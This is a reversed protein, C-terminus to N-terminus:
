TRNSCNENGKEEAGKTVSMFIDELSLGENEFSVIRIGGALADALTRHARLYNNFKLVLLEGFSSPQASFSDALSRLKDMLSHQEPASLLRLVFSEGFLRAADNLAFVSRCRGQAMIAVRDCINEIDSLIHSSMFITTGEAKFRLLLERVEKRGIPDLGSFPEDLILVQPRNLIAQALGLRQQMGKSLTRVNKFRAAHIGTQELAATISASRKSSSIGYLVAFLEMTEEVTLHDYFYPQEALFGITARKAASLLPKGAFLVRGSTPKLLGLICKITTTKGAGNHGLFGFAEAPFVQFSVQEVAPIPRFTWHSRFHKSLQEVEILPTMTDKNTM